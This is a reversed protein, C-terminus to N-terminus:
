LSQFGGKELVTSSAKENIEQKGRKRQVSGIEMRLSPDFSNAYAYTRQLRNDVVCAHVQNNSLTITLRARKEGLLVKDREITDSRRVGTPQVSLQGDVAGGKPNESNGLIEENEAPNTESHTALGLLSEKSPNESGAALRQLGRESRGRGAQRRRALGQSGQGLYSIPGQYRRLWQATPGPPPTPFPSPVASSVGHLACSFPASPRRQCASSIYRAHTVPSFPQIKSCFPCSAPASFPAASSLDIGESSPLTLPAQLPVRRGFGSRLQRAPLSQGVAPVLFGLHSGARLGTFPTVCLWVALSASDHAVASSSPERSRVSIGEQAALMTRGHWNRHIPSTWWSLRDDKKTQQGSPVDGGYNLPSSSRSADLEKHVGDRQHLGRAQFMLLRRSTPVISAPTFVRPRCTGNAGQHYSGTLLGNGCTRHVSARCRPVSSAVSLVIQTFWLGVFGKLFLSVLSWLGASARNAHGCTTRM